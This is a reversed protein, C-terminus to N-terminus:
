NKFTIATLFIIKIKEGFLHIFLFSSIMPNAIPATIVPRSIIEDLNNPREEPCGEEIGLEMVQSKFLKIMKM